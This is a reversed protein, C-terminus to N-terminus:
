NLSIGLDDLFHGLDDDEFQQDMVEKILELESASDLNYSFISKLQVEDGDEPAEGSGLDLVGLVIASMVRDQYGYSTILQELQTILSYAEAMFEKDKVNM